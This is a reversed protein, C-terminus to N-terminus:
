TKKALYRCLLKVSWKKAAIRNEETEYSVVEGLERGDARASREADERLLGAMKLLTPQLIAGAHKLTLEASASCSHVEEDTIDPRLSYTIEALIPRDEAPPKKGFFQVWDRWSRQRIIKLGPNILEFMTRWRKGSSRSYIFTLACFTTIGILLLAQLTMRGIATAPGWAIRAENFTLVNTFFVAAHVFAPFFFVSGRAFGLIQNRRGYDWRALTPPYNLVQGMALAHYLLNAMSEGDHHVLRERECIRKVKFFALYLNEHQRIMTMCLLLTLVFLTAGGVIGLDNVDVHMGLGPVPVLTVEPIANARYM